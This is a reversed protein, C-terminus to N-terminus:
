RRPILWSIAEILEGPSVIKPKKIKDKLILIHKQDLSVLYDCNNEMAGALVHADGPDFVKSLFFNTTSQKPAPLVSSFIKLVKEEAQPASLSIKYSRRKIEDLITESIIGIIKKSKVWSLLKASGGNPSHLGSLVVSANFFVKKSLSKPKNLM